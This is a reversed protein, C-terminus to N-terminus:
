TAEFVLTLVGGETLTGSVEPGKLTGFGNGLVGTSEATYDGAPMNSFTAPTTGSGGQPGTLIFTFVAEGNSLVYITGGSSLEPADLPDFIGSQYSPDGFVKQFTRIGGTVTTSDKWTNEVATKNWSATASAYDNGNRAEMISGAFVTGVTGEAFGSGSNSDPSVAIQYSLETPILVSNTVSRLIGKTSIQASNMNVLNSKASIINCFAPVGIGRPSAFVCRINDNSNAWNGAVSLVYEEEGVLHAGETSSYTIVKEHELNYLGKAQNGSDFGFNKTESIKGGNSLLSNRFTVDSVSQSQGLIGTPISGPSAVVWQLSGMEDVMGTVDIVSDISFIQNEPTQNPLRDSVCTGVILSVMLLISGFYTIKVVFGSHM